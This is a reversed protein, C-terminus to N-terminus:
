SLNNWTVTFEPRSGSVAGATAQQGLMVWRVLRSLPVGNIGSTRVRCDILSLQGFETLGGGPAEVVFDASALTGQKYPQSQPGPDYTWNRTLNRLVFSFTETPSSTNMATVEAQMNDGAYVQYQIPWSGPKKPGTDKRTGDPMTWIMEYFPVYVPLLAGPLPRCQSTVGVQELARSGAAGLGVWFAAQSNLSTCKETPVTFNARVHTYSGVASYGSYNDTVQLRLTVAGGHASPSHDPTESTRVSLIEVCNVGGHQQCVQIAYGKANDATTGWGTGFSTGSRALSAFGDEVWVYPTCDSKGGQRVCAAASTNEANSQSGGYGATAVGTSPSYAIAAFDGTAANAIGAQAGVLVFVLFMLATAPLRRCHRPRDSFNFRQPQAAMKSVVAPAHQAAKATHRGM